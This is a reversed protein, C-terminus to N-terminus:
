PRDSELAAASKWADRADVSNVLGSLEAAFVQRPIPRAGFRSLHATEQQCDVLPVDLRGLLSILRTLAIKSADPERAFMSEGFFMRGIAIGYLGGALRGDCWAEVSHAHGRRHLEVYADQMEATIWTGQARERPAACCEIVAAFDADFTIEFRGQRAVKRLSRPVRFEDVYLVMRPDPSWWLIPQGESYWPFIGHRYADLLRDPSLDGGAALLGPPDSLASAIPPFPAGARLWPIV